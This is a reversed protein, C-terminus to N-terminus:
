KGFIVSMIWATSQKLGVNIDPVSGLCGRGGAVNLGVAYWRRVGNHTVEAMLPTGSEAVNMPCLFPMPLEDAQTCFTDANISGVRADEYTQVLHKCYTIDM